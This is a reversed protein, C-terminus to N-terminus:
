VGDVGFLPKGLLTDWNIGKPTEPSNSFGETPRKISENQEFLGSHCKKANGPIKPNSIRKFIISVLAQNTNDFM